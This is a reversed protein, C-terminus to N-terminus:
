EFSIVDDSIDLGKRFVKDGGKGLKGDKGVSFAGVRKRPIRGSTMDPGAFDHYFGELDIKGDGNTDLIVGYQLGWSDYLCGDREADPVGGQATKDFFGSRPENSRSFDASRGDYFVINHPNLSGDHNAGKRINRLAFFLANNPAKAGFKPDGYVTDKAGGPLNLKSPADVTPFKGYETYYADLAVKIAQVTQKERSRGHGNSRHRPNLLLGVPTLFIVLIVIIVIAVFLELRTFAFRCCFSRTKMLLSLFGACTHRSEIPLCDM